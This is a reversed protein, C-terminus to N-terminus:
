QETRRRCTCTSPPGSDQAYAGQNTRMEAQLSISALRPDGDLLWNEGIKRFLFRLTETASFEGSSITADFTIAARGNELAAADILHVKDNRSVLARRVAVHPNYRDIRRGCRARCAPALLTQDEECSVLM